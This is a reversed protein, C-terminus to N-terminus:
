IPIIIPVFLEASRRPFLQSKAASLSKGPQRFVSVARSNSPMSVANAPSRCHLPGLSLSFYNHVSAMNLGLLWNTFTEQNSGSSNHIDTHDWSCTQKCGLAKRQTVIADMHTNKNTAATGASATFVGRKDDRETVKDFGLTIHHLPQIHWGLNWMCQMPFM